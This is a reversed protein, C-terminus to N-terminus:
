AQACKQSILKYQVSRRRHAILLIKLTPKTDRVRHKQANVVRHIIALEEELADVRCATRLRVGQLLYHSSKSDDNESVGRIARVFVNM